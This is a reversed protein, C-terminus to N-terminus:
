LNSLAFCVNGKKKKKKKLSPRRPHKNFEILAGATYAGDLAVCIILLLSYNGVSTICLPDFHIRRVVSPIGQSGCVDM